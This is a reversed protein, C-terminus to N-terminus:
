RCISDLRSESGAGGAGVHVGEDSHAGGGGHYVAHEGDILHAVPQSVSIQLQCRLVVHVQIKLGGAHDEGEDGQALEQLGAGLALGALGDGTQHIQGWVAATRRSPLLHLDGTSSTRTPSRM